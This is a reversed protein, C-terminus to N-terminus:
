DRRLAVFGAAVAAAVCAAGAVKTAPVIPAGAAYMLAQLVVYGPSTLANIKEGLNFSLEGHNVLNEAYRAAIYADDATFGWYAAVFAGGAAVAALALVNWAYGLRSPTGM